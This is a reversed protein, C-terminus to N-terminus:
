VVERKIKFYSNNQTVRWLKIEFLEKANQNDVQPIFLTVGGNDDKENGDDLHSHM